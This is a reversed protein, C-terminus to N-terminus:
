ATGESSSGEMLDIFKLQTRGLDILDGSRLQARRVRRSNVKVGNSSDLDFFEFRNPGTQRVEAHRRSVESHLLQLDNGSERGITVVSRNLTFTREYSRDDIIRLRPM